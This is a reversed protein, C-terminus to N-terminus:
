QLSIDHLDMEHQLSTGDFPLKWPEIGDIGGISKLSTHPSLLGIIFANM